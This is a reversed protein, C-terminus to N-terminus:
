MHVTNIGASSVHRDSNAAADAVATASAFRRASKVNVRMTSATANVAAPLSSRHPGDPGRKDCQRHQGGRGCWRVGLRVVRHGDLHSQDGRGVADAGHDGLLCVARSQGADGDLGVEALQPQVPLPLYGVPDAAGDRGLPRGDLDRDPRGAVAGVLQERGTRRDQGGVADGTDAGPRVAAGEHHGDLGVRRRGPGPRRDLLRRDRDHDLRERPRDRRHASLLVGRRVRAARDVVERERGSPNVPTQVVPNATRTPCCVRM